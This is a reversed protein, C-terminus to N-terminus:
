LCWMVTPSTRFEFGIDLGNFNSSQQGIDSPARCDDDTTIADAGPLGGTDPSRSLSVEKLMDARRLCKGPTAGAVSGSARHRPGLHVHGVYGARPYIVAERHGEGHQKLFQSQGSSAFGSRACGQHTRCRRGSLM